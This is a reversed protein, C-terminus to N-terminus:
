CHSSRLTRKALAEALMHVSELKKMPTQICVDVLCLTLALCSFQFFNICVM